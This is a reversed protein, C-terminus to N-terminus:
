RYEAGYDIKHDGGFPQVIKNSPRFGKKLSPKALSKKALTILGDIPSFLEQYTMNYSETDGQTKFRSLACYEAFIDFYDLTIVTESSDATLDTWAKEIVAYFTYTGDPTPYFISEWLDSTIKHILVKNPKGQWSPEGIKNNYEDLSMEEVPYKTTGDMYYGYLYRKFTAPLYGSGSYTATGQTFAWDEVTRLFPWYALKCFSRGRENVLRRVKTQADTSEDGTRDCIASVISARTIGLGM